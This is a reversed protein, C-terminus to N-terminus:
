QELEFCFTIAVTSDLAELSTEAAITARLRVFVSAVGVSRRDMGFDDAHKESEGRSMVPFNRREINCTGENAFRERVIAVHVHTKRMAISLAFFDDNAQKAGEVAEAFGRADEIEAHACVERRNTENLGSVLWTKERAFVGITGIGMCEDMDIIDENEGGSERGVFAKAIGHVCLIIDGEYGGDLLKKAVFNATSAM